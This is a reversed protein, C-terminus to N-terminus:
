GGLYARKVAPDQRLREAPGQLAVRGTQLVAATHAVRLAQYANQEVLLVSIGSEHIQRIVQFLQTVVKPALGLSPEDLLLLKPRAMLGRGLALMQQEGGSLTGALQAQRQRLLPFLGLVWEMDKALGARDRRLCGGVLLNERVTLRPFLRRGEPVQTIGAAAVREASWGHLSQGAFRIVGRIPPLVGSIAMLTTTKGAGNAGILAVLEGRRVELRIGKLVEVPGYGVHLDEVQLLPVPVKEM